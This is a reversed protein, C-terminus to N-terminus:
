TSQGPQDKGSKVRKSGTPGDKADDKEGAPDEESINGSKDKGDEPPKPSIYKEITNRTLEPFRKQIYRVAEGMSPFPKPPVIVYNIIEYKM